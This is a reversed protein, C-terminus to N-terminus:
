MGTFSSSTTETHIFFIIKLEATQAQRILQDFISDTYRHSHTHINVLTFGITVEACLSKYDQM